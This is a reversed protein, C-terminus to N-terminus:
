KVIKELSGSPIWGERGDLMEVQAWGKLSADTIKVYTGEHIVFVETADNSPTKKVNAAPSVVVAGNSSNMNKTLQWAFINSFIFVVIFLLSMFFGIQRFLIKEAFLYVLFSVLALVLAFLALKAWADVSQSGVLSKYWEVIFIEDAPQIKDITKSRAIALNHKIDRNGPALLLAREYCIVAKTINDSRYYANGMNYYLDPTAKKQLLNEYIQIAKQYNGKSYAEDAVVKNINTTEKVVDGSNIGFATLTFNLLLALLMMSKGHMNQKKMRKMGEEINTIASVAKDYTKQMNGAADGPAYREFECEDLAEIFSSIITEDVSRGYLQEAINERSLESVSISLKDSVYGWLARLVEDYFESSKGQNMLKSAIRLRKGAVKNAKKGKTVAINAMDMARKRFVVFLVIFLAIVFANLLIYLLSGYFSNSQSSDNDGEHIPHIDLDEKQSYDTIDGTRGDGKEVTIDIPNTKLTKYKNESTDFYTFSIPPISYTGQNRPVILIDYVMNGSLGQATLQTKDTIKADYKEFDKPVDLEPQKILKLNGNGGIVISVNIPNGAKVNKKDATASISFHGVGGSFDAPKSPLPDVQITMGPAKIDKKVEVYGSGGNFFAEFPDVNQNEQVVIGKFIISPIELKGTIQPYMVYQSWTVCRYPRGNVSEIHFSKQQPLQVEQTHFGTLDPMKGELQTLEVQTYVKYTLLIPEQEHVHQKNASVKIFLDNGSISSGSPRVQAGRQQVNGQQGNQPGNGQVKGSVTIKISSSTAEKGEVKAHAGPITFTGNKAASLIYTYTISSSSSTHGNIMQFSQQTSTSPGMLVEFADPINGTRFGKVDTTNVTYQLRFQEGVAVKQPASVQIQANIVSIFVTMFFVLTGLRKMMNNTCM